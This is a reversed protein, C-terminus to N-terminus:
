PGGPSGLGGVSGIGRDYVCRYARKWRYSCERRAPLDDRGVLPANTEAAACSVSSPDDSTTVEGSLFTSGDGAGCAFVTGAGGLGFKRYADRTVARGDGPRVGGACQQPVRSTREYWCVTAAPASTMSSSLVPATLEHSITTLRALSSSTPLPRAAALVEDSEGPPCEEPEAREVNSEMEVTCLVEGGCSSALVLVTMVLTTKM